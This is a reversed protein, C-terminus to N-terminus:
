TYYLHNQYIYDIVKSPILHGVYLGQKLRNRIETASIEMITTKTMGKKLSEVIVRDGILEKEDHCFRKGVLVDAIKLIEIPEKWKFFNQASDLGLILFYHNDVQQISDEKKLELLTDIMFSSGKRQIENPIIGFYSIDELALELMKLRDVSAAVSDQNTKHPNIHAPCFWVEDLDHKEKMEVALNIHGFHIPDFTGGYIGIRKKQM